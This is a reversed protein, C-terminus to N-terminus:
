RLVFVAIFGLVAVPIAYLTWPRVPSGIWAAEFQTSVALVLGLLTALLSAVAVLGGVILGPIWLPSLLWVAVL